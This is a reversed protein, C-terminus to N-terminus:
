REAPTGACVDELQLQQQGAIPPGQFCIPCPPHPSVIPHTVIPYQKKIFWLGDLISWLNYGSGELIWRQKCPAM